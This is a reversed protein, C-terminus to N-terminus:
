TLLPLTKERESLKAWSTFLDSGSSNHVFPQTVDFRPGFKKNLVYSHFGLHNTVKTLLDDAGFVDFM